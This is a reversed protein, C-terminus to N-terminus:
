KDIQLCIQVVLLTGISMLGVKCGMSTDNVSALMRNKSAMTTGFKPHWVFDWSQNKYYKITNKCFQPSYM